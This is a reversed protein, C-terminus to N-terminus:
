HRVAECTGLLERKLAHIVARQARHGSCFSCLGASWPTCRRPVIPAICCVHGQVSDMVSQEILMVARQAAHVM